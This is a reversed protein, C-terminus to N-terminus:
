EKIFGSAKFKSIIKDVSVSGNIRTSKTIEKGDNYFIVTPTGTIGTKEELKEYEEETINDTNIYKVEIKYKNAVEKLKPSFKICASCDTRMVELIFTEKNKILEEYENYSIEKVYSKTCGTLIFTVIIIIGLKLYKKM